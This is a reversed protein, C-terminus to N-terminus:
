CGDHQDIDEDVDDDKDSSLPRNWSNIQIKLRDEEAEGEVWGVGRM